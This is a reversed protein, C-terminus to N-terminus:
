RRQMMLRERKQAQDVYMQLVRLAPSSINVFACGAVASPTGDRDPETVIHQVRLHVTLQSDQALLLRAPGIAEGSTPQLLEPPWHLALGGVSVNLVRLRVEKDQPVVLLPYQGTPACVRYAQRRQFRYIDAPLMARLMASNGASVQCLGVVDFQLKIRDLYAVATVDDSRLLAGLQDDSGSLELGIASHESDVQTLVANCAQASSANLQVGIGRQALERLWAVVESRSSLRYEGTDPTSEDPTNM